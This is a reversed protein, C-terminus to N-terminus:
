KGKIIPIKEINFYTHFCYSCIPINTNFGGDVITDMYYLDDDFNTIYSKCVDCILVKEEDNM